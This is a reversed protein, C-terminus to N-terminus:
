LYPKTLRVCDRHESSLEVTLAGFHGYISSLHISTVTAFLVKNVFSVVSLIQGM